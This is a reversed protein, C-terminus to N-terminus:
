VLVSRLPVRVRDPRHNLEDLLEQMARELVFYRLLTQFQERDQPLFATGETAARYARLFAAGIWRKWHLTWPELREWDEPRHQTFTFLGEYAAYEFSRLMGAIDKLPSQKARRESMPRSAEGEFDLVFFDNEAWLVEGLHYNGHIRTKMVDLRLASLDALLRSIRSCQGLLAYAQEVVNEQLRGLNRDVAAWVEQTLKRSSRSM